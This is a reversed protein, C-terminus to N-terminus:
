PLLPLTIRPPRLAISRHPMAKQFHNKRNAQNYKEKAPSSHTATTQLCGPPRSLEWANKTDAPEAEFVDSAM